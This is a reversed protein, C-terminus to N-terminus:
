VAVGELVPEVVEVSVAVGLPVRVVEEVVVRVPDREGVVDPVGDRVGEVEEVVVRVAVDDEVRVPVVVDVSVFDDDGVRVDDEVGEFDGVEVAEVVIVPLEVVLRM